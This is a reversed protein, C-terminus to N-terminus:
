AKSHRKGIISNISAFVLASIVLYLALDICLWTWNIYYTPPNMSHLPDTYYTEFVWPLPWGHKITQPYDFVTISISAKTYFYSVVLFAATLL